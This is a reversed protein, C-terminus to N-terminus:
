RILQSDAGYRPVKTTSSTSRQTRFQPLLPLASPNMRYDASGTPGLNVWNIGLPDTKWTGFANPFMQGMIQDQNLGMNQMLQMEYIKNRMGTTPEHQKAVDGYVGAVGPMGMLHYAMQMKRAQEAPSVQNTLKFQEKRTEGYGPVGAEGAGPNDQLQEPTGLLNQLASMKADHMAQDREWQQKVIGFQERSIAMQEEWNKQDQAMKDAQMQYQAAAFTERNKAFRNQVDWQKQQMERNKQREERRKQFQMAPMYTNLGQQVGKNFQAGAGGYTGRSDMMGAGASLLALGQIAEPTDFDKM